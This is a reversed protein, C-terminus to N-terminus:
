RPHDGKKDISRDAVGRIFAWVLKGHNERKLPPLALSHASGGEINNQWNQRAQGVGGWVGWDRRGNQPLIRVGLGRM